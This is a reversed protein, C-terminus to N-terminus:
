SRFFQANVCNLPTFGELVRKVEQASKRRMEEFAEPSYFACHPTILLRFQLWSEGNKWAQILKDHETPPENPLVDLGAAWVIGDKMAKYLEDINIIEGRATNIIITGSGLLSFFKKDAMNRTEDTLPTHFSIIDSEACIESLTEKREINFSKEIGRPIYPDYFIVRVGFGKARLAVATGIRGLGIIGLTKCTLRQTTADEWTWGEPDERVRKLFFEINRYISLIMAWTHDAVDNVGYDPVTCLFIEKRAAYIIDVNDFGTGVRVIVKCKKMKSLSKKTIQIDHWVLLADADAVEHLIQNERSAQLVVITRNEGLVEREIDAPPTLRDTIVIKSRIM